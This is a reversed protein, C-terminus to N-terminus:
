VVDKSPGNWKWVIWQWFPTKSFKEWHIAVLMTSVIVSLIAGLFGLLNTSETVWAILGVINLSHLFSHNPPNM